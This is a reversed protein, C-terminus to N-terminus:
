LAEESDKITEIIEDIKEEFRATPAYGLVARAKSIDAISHIIEGWQRPGYQIPITPNINRKLVEAVDNVSRPIGSGINFVGGTHSRQLAQLFAHVVDGVYVFDRIQRGDGFICPSEGRMLKTTFITIVGVYPTFGQGPGYTNFLRLVTWNRGEHSLLNMIYQESTLKSIGYPSIPATVADENIPTPSPSDAYVAMSSAFVFKWVSGSLAARLLNLTGIVNTKADEYFNSISDRISVRAALHCIADIGYDKVIRHMLTADQLDGEIFFAERPVRERLGVSLNDLVFTEFGQHLLVGTLRSGIFGAGGTV